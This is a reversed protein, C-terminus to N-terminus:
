IKNKSMYKILYHAFVLIELAPFHMNPVEQNESKMKALKSALKNSFLIYKEPQDRNALINNLEKNKLKYLMESNILHAMDDLVKIDTDDFKPCGLKTLDNIKIGLFHEELQTGKAYVDCDYEEIKGIIHEKVFNRDYSRYNYQFGRFTNPYHDNSWNFQRMVSTGQKYENIDYNLRFSNIYLIEAKGNKDIKFFLCAVETIITSNIKNGNKDFKGTFFIIGETDIVCFINKNNTHIICIPLM